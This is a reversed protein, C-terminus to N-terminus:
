ALEELLALAAFAGLTRELMFGFCPAYDTLVPQSPQTLLSIATLEQMLIVHLLHRFAPEVDFLAFAGIGLALVQMDVRIGFQLVTRPISPAETLM